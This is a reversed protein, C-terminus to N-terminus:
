SAPSEEVAAEAVPELAAADAEPAPPPEVFPTKTAHDFLFQLTKETRIHAALRKDTGEKRFKQRVSAAPEREQKAYRQIERDIEEDTAQIDETDAIKELLLSGKVDRSARPKQSERIKSWDLKLTRPDIGQGSLRQLQQEVQTEIQRDVYTEPIPFEHADILTEILKGKAVQQAAYERERQIAQRSRTACNWWRRSTASTRPSTTTSPPCSKRACAPSPPRSVSPRAPWSSPATTKRIPSRSRKAEGPSAGRLSDSFATLTDEGGIHLQLDKQQVPEAVGSLSELDVVAFDGDELPRPDQNVYDAKQEQLQQLRKDIDEDSVVPENYEVNVGKYDGLTIEPAVEFEAKFVLPEDDHWHLDKVDPTGVVKLNESEVRERFAKPLIKDLVEKRIESPFRQRVLSAPAKGPRFGPLKVQKQFEAVVKDTEGRVQEVPVTIELEHKCGEVLAM